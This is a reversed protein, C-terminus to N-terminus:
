AANCTLSELKPWAMELTEGSVSFWNWGFKICHMIANFFLSMKQSNEGVNILRQDKYKDGDKSTGQCIYM